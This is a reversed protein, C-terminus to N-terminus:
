SLGEVDHGDGSRTRQYNQGVEDNLTAVYKLRKQFCLNM